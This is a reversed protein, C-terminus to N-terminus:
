RRKVGIPTTVEVKKVEKGALLLAAAKSAATACTGTTYGRKLIRGNELLVVRGKKIHEILADYGINNMKAARKILEEPYERGSVPDIM